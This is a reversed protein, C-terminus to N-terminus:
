HILAPFRSRGFASNLEREVTVAEFSDGFVVRKYRQGNIQVFHVSQRKGFVAFLRRLLAFYLRRPLSHANTQFLSGLRLKMPCIGPSVPARITAHLKAM